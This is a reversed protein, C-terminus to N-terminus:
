PETYGCYKFYMYNLINYTYKSGVIRYIKLALQM